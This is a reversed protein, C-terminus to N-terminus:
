LENSGAQTSFYIDHLGDLDVDAVAIANGHDYHVAKWNAGIDDIIKHSFTIGSDAIQDSFTFDNFVDM